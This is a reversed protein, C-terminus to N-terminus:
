DPADDGPRRKWHGAIRTWAGDHVQFVVPEAHHMSLRSLEDSKLAGLHYAAHRFAAGHGVFLKLVPRDSPTVPFRELLHAAVRRGTDLLSEAGPLPLRFRSDAKWDPPLPAIRPDQEVVAAIQQLSLNGAIGLGRETLAEFAEVCPAGLGLDRLREAILSATQWARLLVSADIVPALSWGHRQLLGAIADGCATAQSEGRATLAFPQHASPTDPLQRYDGHRILAVLGPVTEAM